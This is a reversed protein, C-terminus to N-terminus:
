PPLGRVPLTVTPPLLFSATAIMAPVMSIGPLVMKCLTGRMLSTYVRISIKRRDPRSRRRGCVIVRQFYIGRVERGALGRVVQHALHAGTEIHQARQEGAEPVRGDSHGAAAVDARAGDIEMDFPQLLQARFQVQFVADIVARGFVQAARVDIQFKGARAARLMQHDRGAPRPAAGHDLVARRLRFHDVHGLEEVGAARFDGTHSRGGDDNVAHVFQM